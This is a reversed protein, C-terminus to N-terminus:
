DRTEKCYVRSERVETDERTDKSKMKKIKEMQRWEEANNPTNTSEM